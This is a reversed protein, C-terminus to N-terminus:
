DHLLEKLVEEKKYVWQKILTINNKDALVAFLSINTLIPKFFLASDYYAITFDLLSRKESVNEVHMTLETLRASLKKLEQEEDSVYILPLGKLRGGTGILAIMEAGTKKKLQELETEIQKFSEEAEKKSFLKSLIGM